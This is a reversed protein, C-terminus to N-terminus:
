KYYKKSEEALRLALNEKRFRNWFARRAISNSILEEVLGIAKKLKNAQPNAYWCNRLHQWGERRQFYGDEEMRKEVWQLFKKWKEEEMESPDPLGLKRRFYCIRAAVGRLQQLHGQLNSLNDIHKRLRLVVNQCCAFEGIGVLRLWLDIDEAHRFRERYGGLGIVADRRFCTTPHPLFPRLTELSRVLSDHTAPYKNIKLPVGQPNIQQCWGGLLVLSPNKKIAEIQIAFRHPLAIDDQDMRAIWAARAQSIGFNLSYVLGKNDQNFFVIREDNYSEIIAKSRDTSGDNIIIFEFNNFTQNLISEIAEKLYKEGNYVSLVVSIEPHKMM